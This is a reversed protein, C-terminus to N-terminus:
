VEPTYTGPRVPNTRLLDGTLPTHSAIKLLRIRRTRPPPVRQRQPIPPDGHRPLCQLPALAPDDVAPVSQQACQARAAHAPHPERVVLLQGALDGELLDGQGLDRPVRGFARLADGSGAALGPVGGTRAPMRMHGRDVVHHQALAQRPDDHLVHRVRDVELRDYPLPPRERGLRHGPDPEGDEVREGGAVADADEVPIHFRGVDKEGSVGGAVRVRAHQEGVVADRELGLGALGPEGGGGADEAGGAIERRLAGPALWRCRGGVHEREAGRQVRRDLATAGEVAVALVGCERGQETHVPVANM